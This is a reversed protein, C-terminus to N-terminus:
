DVHGDTYFIQSAEKLTQLKQPKKTTNGKTSFSELVKQHQNDRQRSHSSHISDGKGVWEDTM